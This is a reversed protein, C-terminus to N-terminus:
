PLQWLMGVGERMEHCSEESQAMSWFLSEHIISFSEECPLRVTQDGEEDRRSQSLSDLVAVDKRIEWEASTSLDSV